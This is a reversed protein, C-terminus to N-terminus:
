SEREDSTRPSDVDGPEIAQTAPAVAAAEDRRQSAYTDIIECAEEPDDTLRFAEESEHGVRHGGDVVEADVGRRVASRAAGESQRHAHFTGIHSHSGITDSQLVSRRRDGNVSLKLSDDRPIRGSDQLFQFHRLRRSVM